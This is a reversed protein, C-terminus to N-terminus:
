ENRLAPLQSKRLSLTVAIWTWFLSLALLGVLLWIFGEGPKQGTEGFIMPAIGLVASAAGIGLGWLAL